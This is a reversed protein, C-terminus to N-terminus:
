KRKGTGEFAAANENEINYTVVLNDGDASFGTVRVDTALMERPQLQELLMARHKLRKRKNRKKLWRSGFRAPKTMWSSTPKAM